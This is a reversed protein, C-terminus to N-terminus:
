ETKGEKIQQAEIEEKDVKNLGLVFAYGYTRLLQPDKLCDIFSKPVGEGIYMHCRLLLNMFDDVKSNKLANLMQHSIEDM